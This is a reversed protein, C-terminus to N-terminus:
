RRCPGSAAGASAGSRAPCPSTTSTTARGDVGPPRGPGLRDHPGDGPAPQPGPVRRAGVRPARVRRSPLGRHARRGARGPAAPDRRGRTAQPRRRDLAPGAAPRRGAPGAPQRRRLPRGPRRPDRRRRPRRAGHGRVAGARSGSLEIVRVGTLPGGSAEPESVGHPGGAQHRVRRGDALLLDAPRPGHGGARRPRRRAGARRHARGGSLDIMPDRDGHIVLTPVDLASLGAVRDGSATIALVQLGAGAPHFCREHAADLARRIREEEFHDPSGVIRSFRVGHELAGDRDTPTPTMLFSMVDSRPQGVSIEGTSAAMSTLSAVRAPHRIAVTQAIAGGFSLGFVHARGCRPRRARRRRRRGHRRPPLARRRAGRGAALAHGRERRRAAGDEVVPRRGPQRLPHGPLGPRRVGRGPRGGVAHAAGGLDNILLLAPDDPDGDTVYEIEVDDHRARPM